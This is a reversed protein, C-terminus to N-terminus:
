LRNKNLARRILENMPQTPNLVSAAIEGGRVPLPRGVLGIQVLVSAQDWELDDLLLDVRACQDSDVRDHNLPALRRTLDHPSGRPRETVEVSVTV